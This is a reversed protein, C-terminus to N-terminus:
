VAELTDTYIELHVSPFPRKRCSNLVLPPVRVLTLSEELWFCCANGNEQATQSKLGLYVGALKRGVGELPCQEDSFAFQNENLSVEGERLLLYM